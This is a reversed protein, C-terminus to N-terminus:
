DYKAIVKGKSIKQGNIWSVILYGMCGLFTLGSILVGLYFYSQPKFYLTLEVDISGDPNEKYYSKDFNAKIYEPDITWQNAYDDVMKHTDAFVPKQLFSVLNYKSFLNLNISEVNTELDKDTFKDIYIKYGQNFGDRFILDTKDSLGRISLNYEVMSKKEFFIRGSSSTTVKPVFSTQPIQYLDFYRNSVKKELGYRRILRIDQRLKKDGKYVDHRVLIYKVNFKGIGEFDGEQWMKSLLNNENDSIRIVGSKLITNMIDRGIFLQKDTEIVGHGIGAPLSLVFFVDKDQNIFDAIQKYEDRFNWVYSGSYPYNDESVVVEKKLLPYGFVAIVLILIAINIRYGINKSRTLGLWILSMSLPILVSFKNDPSRVAGFFPVNNVLYNYIEGFPYTGGKAFFIGILLIWLYSNVDKLLKKNVLFNVLFVAYISLSTFVFFTSRYYDAFTYLSRPNWGGYIPWHIHNKLITLIGGQILSGTSNGMNTEVFNPTIAQLVFPVLVPLGLLLILFFSIGINRFLIKYSINKLNLVFVGLVAFLIPIVYTIISLILFCHLIFFILEFKKINGQLIKLFYYLFLPLVGYALYTFSFFIGNNINLINFPHVFYFITILIIPLLDTNRLNTKTIMFDKYLHFFGIFSFSINLFAILVFLIYGTIFVPQNLLNLLLYFLANLFIQLFAISQHPNLGQYIGQLVFFNNKLHEFSGFTLSDHIFILSTTSHGWFVYMGWVVSVLFSTSLLYLKWHWKM